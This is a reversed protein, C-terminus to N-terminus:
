FPENLIIVATFTVRSYTHLEPTRLGLMSLIWRYQENRDTFEVSRFVHTVGEISDVIPCAFDYTPYVYQTGARDHSTDLCRYITPDRLAGIDNKISMRIRLVGTTKKGTKMQNWLQVNEVTDRNRYASEKRELREKRMKELPTDDVYALGHKILNDAHSKIIDFSDSTYTIKDPIPGLRKIDEKIATIYEPSETNPKTDDFRLIWKGHYREALVVNCYLAKVHGIHLYGSPEPPFRTVIKGDYSKLRSYLKKNIKWM